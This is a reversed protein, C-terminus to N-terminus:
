HKLIIAIDQKNEMVERELQELKLLIAKHTLLMEHVV